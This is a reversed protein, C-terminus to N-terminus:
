NAKGELEAVLRKFDDRRRLADFDPQKLDGTMGWGAAIADRLAAVAQDAFGAAETPTVGSSKDGRLGALLALVHSREFRVDPDPAPLKALLELARRLDPGAQSPQGSRVLAWGRYAHSYSLVNIYALNKADAEVLQKGRALAANLATFAEAFRKQRALLRGLNNEGFALDKRFGPRNPFEAALQKWLSRAQSCDQEAEQLGDMASHSEGRNSYSLALAARFDPRAPFDAALEKQISVARDYDQEAAKLRGAIHRLAARNMHGLSLHM